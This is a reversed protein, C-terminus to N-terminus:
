FGCQQLQQPQHHAPAAKQTVEVTQCTVFAPMVDARSQFGIAIILKRHVLVLHHGFEHLAVLTVVGAPLFAILPESHQTANITNIHPTIREIADIVPRVRGDSVPKNRWAKRAIV